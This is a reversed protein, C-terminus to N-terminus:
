PKYPAAPAIGLLEVVQQLTDRTAIVEKKAELLNDEIQEVSGNPNEIGSWSSTYAMTSSIQQKTIYRDVADTYAEANDDSVLAQARIMLKDAKFLPDLTSSAGIYRQVVLPSKFCKNQNQTRMVQADELEGGASIGNCVTTLSDWNELLYDVRALGASLKSLEAATPPAAAAPLVTLPSTALCLAALVTVGQHSAVALQQSCPLKMSAIM